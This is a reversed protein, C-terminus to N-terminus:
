ENTFIVRGEDDTDRYIPVTFGRASSSRRAGPQFYNSTVKQVYDRTERFRPVGGFRDVVGPGANYAALAKSLDGNYRDLMMGLYRVGADVNQEPDFADDVGLRRATGPILQMLGLAGKSSIASSNWNSETTIVARVLAPDINHRQASSDAIQQLSEPTAPKRLTAMQMSPNSSRNLAAANPGTDKVPKAPTKRIPKPEANTYVLNGNDDVYAALQAHAPIACLGVM